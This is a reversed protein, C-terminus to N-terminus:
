LLAAWETSGDYHDHASAATQDQRSAGRQPGILRLRDGCGAEPAAAKV